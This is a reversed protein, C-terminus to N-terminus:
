KEVIYHADSATLLTLVQSQTPNTSGTKNIKGTITISGDDNIYPKRCKNLLQRRNYKHKNGNKDYFIWADTFVRVYANDNQVEIIENWKPDYYYYDFDFSEIRSIKLCDDPVNGKNFYNWREHTFKEVM